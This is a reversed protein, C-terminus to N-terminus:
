HAVVAQPNEFVCFFIDIRKELVLFMSTVHWTANAKMRESEKKKKRRASQASKCDRNRDRKSTVCESYTM